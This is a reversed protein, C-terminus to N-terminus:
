ETKAADNAITSAAEKRQKMEKLKRAVPSELGAATAAAERQRLEALTGLPAVAIAAYAEEKKKPRSILHHGILDLIAAFFYWILGALVIGLAIEVIM